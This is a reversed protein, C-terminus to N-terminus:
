LFIATLRSIHFDTNGDVYGHLKEKLIGYFNDCLSYLRICIVENDTLHHKLGQPQVAVVIGEVHTVLQVTLPATHHLVLPQLIGLDESVEVAAILPTLIGHQFVLHTKELDKGDDEIAEDVEEEIEEEVEEKLRKKLMM